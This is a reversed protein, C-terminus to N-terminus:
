GGDDDDDVKHDDGEHNLGFLSLSLVIPNWLINLRCTSLIVSSSGINISVIAANKATRSSTSAIDLRVNRM